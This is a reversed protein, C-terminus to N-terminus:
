FGDLEMMRTTTNYGGDVLSPKIQNNEERKMTQWEASERERECVSFVCM